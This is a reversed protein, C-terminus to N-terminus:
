LSRSVTRVEVDYTHQSSTCHSRVRRAKLALGRGRYIRGMSWRYVRAHTAGTTQISCYTKFGENKKQEVVKCEHAHQTCYACLIQIYRKSTLSHMNRPIHAHQASCTACCAARFMDRLMSRPIHRLIHRAVHMCFLVTCVYEACCASTLKSFIYSAQHRNKQPAEFESMCLVCVRAIVLATAKNKNTHPVDVM